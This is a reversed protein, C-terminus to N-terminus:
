NSRRVVYSAYVVSKSRRLTRTTIMPHVGQHDAQLDVRRDAQHDEQHDVEVQQHVAEQHDAAAVMGPTVVQRFEAPQHYEAMEAQYTVATEARTAVQFDHYAEDL